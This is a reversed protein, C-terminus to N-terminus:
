KWDGGRESNGVALQSFIYRISSSPCTGIHSFGDLTPQTCLPKVLPVCLSPRMWSARDRDRLGRWRRPLIRSITRQIFLYLLLTLLSLVAICTVTQTDRKLATVKWYRRIRRFRYGAALQSRWSLLLFLMYFSLFFQFCSKLLSLVCFYILLSRVFFSWSLAYLFSVYFAMWTSPFLLKFLHDGQMKRMM